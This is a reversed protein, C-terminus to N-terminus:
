QWALDRTRNNPKATVNYKVIKKNSEDRKFGTIAYDADPGLGSGETTPYLAILADEGVNVAATELATTFADGKDTVDFTLTLDRSTVETSEFTKGREQDTDTAGGLDVQVNDVDTITSAAASGAAGWKFTGNLGIKLGM